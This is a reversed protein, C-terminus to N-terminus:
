FSRHLFLNQFLSIRSLHQNFSADKYSKIKQVNKAEYYTTGIIM